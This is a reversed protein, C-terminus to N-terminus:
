EMKLQSIEEKLKTIEEDKKQLEKSYIQVITETAETLSVIKSKLITVGNSLEPYNAKAYSSLPYIWRRTEEVYKHLKDINMNYLDEVNHSRDAMKVLLAIKNKKIENFYNNLEVETAGSRKSLLKITQYVEKPFGYDSVLEYGDNKFFGDEADEISDHLIAVCILIDLEEDDLPLSLSILTSAVKLVHLVYPLRYKKGDITICGKRYQGNHIRRAFPLAKLTYKLNRGIAFGKIFLYTKSYLFEEEVNYTEIIPKLNTKSM